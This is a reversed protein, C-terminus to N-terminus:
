LMPPSPLHIVNLLVTQSDDQPDTIYVAVRGKSEKIRTDFLKMDVKAHKEDKFDEDTLCILIYDKGKCSFTTYIGRAGSQAHKSM